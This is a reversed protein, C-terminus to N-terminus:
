IHYFYKIKNNCIPPSKTGFLPLLIKIDHKPLGLHIQNVCIKQVDAHAFFDCSSIKCRVVEKFATDKGCIVCNKPRVKLRQKLRHGGDMFKRQVFKKKLLKFDGLGSGVLTRQSEWNIGFPGL